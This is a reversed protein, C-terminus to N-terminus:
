GEQSRTGPAPLPPFAQASPDAGRASQLCASPAGGDGDEGGKPLDPLANLLGSGRCSAPFLLTASSCPSRRRASAPVPTFARPAGAGGPSPALGPFEPSPLEQQAGQNRRDTPAGGGPPPWGPRLLDGRPMSRPCHTVMGQGSWIGLQGPLSALAPNAPSQEQVGAARPVM